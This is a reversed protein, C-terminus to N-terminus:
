RPEIATVVYVGAGEDRVRFDVQQGAEIGALLAPDARFTMTMAVMLGPIEEHDLTIGGNVRDVAVVVGRGKPDSGGCALAFVLAFAM